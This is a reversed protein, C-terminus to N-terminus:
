KEFLKQCVYGIAGIVPGLLFVWGMFRIFVGPTKATIGQSGLIGTFSGLEDGFWICGLSVIMFVAMVLFSKVGDFSSVFMCFVALGLSVKKWFM